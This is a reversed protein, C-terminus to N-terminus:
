KALSALRRTIYQRVQPIKTKGILSVARDRDSSVLPEIGYWIMLPLQADDKDEEHGLLAEAIAVRDALPLRQLGSALALRVVPSPDSKALEELKALVKESARGDELELTVTWARYHEWPKALGALVVSEELTGTVHYTWLRRLDGLPDAEERVPHLLGARVAPDLKGAIAREQLLRQAHRAFWANKSGRSDLLSVLESDSKAGLDVKVPKPDGYTVKYIRGNTRDVKDYNHCEGTDTWDTVFVGGDPGYQCDLGRFPEADREDAEQAAVPEVDVSM